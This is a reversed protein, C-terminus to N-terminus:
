CPGKASTHGETLISYTVASVAPLRQELTHRDSRTFPIGAAAIKTKARTLRRTMTQESVFFASAIQATSLGAVIRLTPALEIDGHTPGSM